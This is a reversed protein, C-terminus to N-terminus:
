RARLKNRMNSLHFFEGLPRDDLLAAVGAAFFLAAVGALTSIIAYNVILGLVDIAALDLHALSQESFM